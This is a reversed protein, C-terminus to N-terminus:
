NNNNEGQIKRLIFIFEMGNKQLLEIEFNFLLKQKCYLLLQLFEVQTWVHFHISYDIEVLHKVHKEVQEEPVKNVLKAWEIFHALKSSEAGHHYEQVLHELDTVPRDCDFTYRKDPVAMYLIGGPKLVRLHNEITRLPNQCHEIMHNAIVFNQSADTISLLLEGDDIIDVEVLPSNVLEPYQKRLDTVSLRDVYSVRAQKSVVLPSHLAGVEIGDECLYTDAIHRRIGHFDIETKNEAIQSFQKKTELSKEELKELSKPAPQGSRIATIALSPGNPHNPQEFNIRLDDFGFYRLCNLIDKRTMWYSIPANGGCFGSWGLATKYEQRYLQHSFGSYEASIPDSFKHILNPDAAIIEHDYYHTWLFIYQTCHNALLALLEVPNTMHYLVGSALCVEFSKEPQRLYEVFDGCLFKAKQLQLLEKVVLCKLYSRTNAEIATIRAAGSKELLYTHGGELPGLELISKGTVGGIEEMFWKIRPDDFLLAEGASLKHFPSPLKSSWEGQFIDLANQPNPASKIYSDLIFSVTESPNTESPNTEPSQMTASNLTDPSSTNLSLAHITDIDAKAGRSSHGSIRDFLKRPLKLIEM